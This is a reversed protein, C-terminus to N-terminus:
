KLRKRIEARANEVVRATIPLQELRQRLEFAIVEAKETWFRKQFNSKTARGIECRFAYEQVVAACVNVTRKKQSRTGGSAIEMRAMIKPLARIMTHPADAFMKSWQLACNTKEQHILKSTAKDCRDPRKLESLADFMSPVLVFRKILNLEADGWASPANFEKLIGKLDDDVFTFTNLQELEQERPIKTPRGPNKLTQKM